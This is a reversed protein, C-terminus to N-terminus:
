DAEDTMAVSVQQGLLLLRMAEAHAPDPPPQPKGFRALLVHLM